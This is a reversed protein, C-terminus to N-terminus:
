NLKGNERFSWYATESFIVHDVFHLGSQHKKYGELGKQSIASPPARDAFRIPATVTRNHATRSKGHFFHLLLIMIHHVINLDV